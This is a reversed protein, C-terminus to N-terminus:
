FLCTNWLIFSITKVDKLMFLYKGFCFFNTLYNNILNEPLMWCCVWLTLLFDNIKYFCCVFTVIQLQLLYLLPFCDKMTYYLLILLYQIKYLYTWELIHFIIYVSNTIYHFRPFNHIDKLSCPKNLVYFMYLMYMYFCTYRLVDHIHLCLVSCM